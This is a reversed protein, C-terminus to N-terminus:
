FVSWEFVSALNAVMKLLFFHLQFFIPMARLERSGCTTPSKLAITSKDEALPQDQQRFTKEVNNEGVSSM